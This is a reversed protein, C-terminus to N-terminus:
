NFTSKKTFNKHELGTLAIIGADVQQFSPQKASSKPLFRASMWLCSKLIMLLIESHYIIKFSFNRYSFIFLALTVDCLSLYFARLACNGDKGKCTRKDPQLKMLHPCACSFTQNFNILCLHSCPGKGDSTACPNPALLFFVDQPCKLAVALWTFKVDYHDTTIKKEMRLEKLVFSCPDVIYVIGTM